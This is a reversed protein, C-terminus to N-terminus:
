LKLFILIYYIVCLTTNKDVSFYMLFQTHVYESIYVYDCFLSQIINVAKLVFDDEIKTYKLNFNTTYALGMWCPM